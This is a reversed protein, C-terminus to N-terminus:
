PYLRAPGIEAEAEDAAVMRQKLRTRLEAAAAQTEKRGALNVLQHPDALLDYMQYEQYRPAAPVKGGNENPAAVCYTWQRTRLARGVMAESIEIFIEDEWTRDGPQLLGRADRGQMSTPAAIGAAALLTPAVDITGVLEPPQHGGNFGPGQVILPVRISSEHPSRKYERNRTEFHCGHDSLFVVITNAAHHTEDLAALVRGISEDIRACAGYYDPLQQQWDGPFFRLDHPVFPNQFRAAYGEPAVFRNWDNQFHPELQSVVLLFPRSQPQHLFRLARDTIFDVRYQGNYKMENGAGDWLSGEYPHSTHELVNSAEWLDDFGGRYQPAVPGELAHTEAPGLHWKGVYNTSYGAHHFARAITPISPALAIGNRWVGHQTAYQSTMMTARSPACVPQNTVAQFLTGRRAMADLHPTVQMPTRGYAGVVDWRFQDAIYIVLNPPPSSAQALGQAPAAAALAASVKLFDRRSHPPFDAM